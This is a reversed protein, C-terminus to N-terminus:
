RESLILFNFATPDKFFGANRTEVRYRWVGAETDEVPSVCLSWDAAGVPTAIFLAARPDPPATILYVGTTVRESSFGSGVAEGTAGKVQGALMQRPANAAVASWQGNPGFRLDGAVSVDTGNTSLAGGSVNALQAPDKAVATALLAYPAALLALRPTMEPEGSLRIGVFWARSFDLSSPLPTVDGLATSFLGRTTALSKTETWAATGGTAAPYLALTVAYHGDPKAAGGSGALMGTFAITRPAPPQDARAPVLGALALAALAALVRLTTM